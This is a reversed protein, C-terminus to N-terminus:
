FQVNHRQIQPDFDSNFKINKWTHLTMECNEEILVEETRSVQIKAVFSVSLQDLTMVIVSKPDQKKLAKKKLEDEHRQALLKHAQDTGQFMVNDAPNEEEEDEDEHFQQVSITKTQGDNILKVVVHMVQGASDQYETVKKDNLPSGLDLLVQFPESHPNPAGSTTPRRLNRKDIELDLQVIKDNEPEYFGFVM